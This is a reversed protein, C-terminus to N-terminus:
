NIAIKFWEQVAELTYKGSAVETTFDILTQDDITSNLQYGNSILFVLTVQLGTRKNGDSFIHNCIINFMYVSAKHHIEPYLAEGFMESDIIEVLYDLPNENLLNFPPVFNGGFTEIQHKNIAIIQAKSLYYM